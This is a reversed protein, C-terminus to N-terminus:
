FSCMIWILKRNFPHNISLEIQIFSIYQTALIISEIIVEVGFIANHGATHVESEQRVRVSCVHHM